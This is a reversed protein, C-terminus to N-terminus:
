RGERAASEGEAAKKTGLSPVNPASSRAIAVLVTGLRVLAANTRRHDISTPASM